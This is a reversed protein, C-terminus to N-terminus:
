TCVSASVYGCGMIKMALADFEYSGGTVRAM